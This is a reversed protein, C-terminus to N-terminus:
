EGGHQEKSVHKPLKCQVIQFIDFTDGMQEEEIHDEDRWDDATELVLGTVATGLKEGTAGIITEGGLLKWVGLLPRWQFVEVRGVTTRTESTGHKHCPAGVALLTGDASFDLSAGFCDGRQGMDRVGGVMDVMTWGADTYDYVRVVGRAQTDPSSDSSVAVRMGELAISIVDTGMLQNGDATGLETWAGQVIGSGELSHVSLALLLLLLLLRLPPPQPAHACARRVRAAAM